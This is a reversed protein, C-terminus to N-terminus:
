IFLFIDLPRSNVEHILYYEEFLLYVLKLPSFASGPDKSGSPDEHIRTSGGPDAKKGKVLEM